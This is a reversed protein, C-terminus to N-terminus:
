TYLVHHYGTRLTFAKVLFILLHELALNIRADLRFRAFTRYRNSPHGILIEIQIAGAYRGILFVYAPNSIQHYTETEADGSGGATAKVRDDM